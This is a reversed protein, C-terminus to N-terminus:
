RVCESSFRLGEVERPHRELTVPVFTALWRYGWQDGITKTVTLKVHNWGAKLTIPTPERMFYEENTFATESINNSTPEEPHTMMWKLGANVWKPAPVAVGNVEVKTGPSRGWEGAEPLGNSRGGSRGFGTFGIWAGITQSKSSHIWTEVYAVGQTEMLYSSERKLVHSGCDAITITAQAVDTAVVEGRSNSIRFRLPTQRVYSFPLGLPLVVKDRNAIMADEFAAAEAFEATGPPPLKVLYEPRDKARGSWQFDCYSVIALAFSNDGWVRSTDEGLYDDHWSCLVVGLKNEDPIDYRLPKSFVAGNLFTMPDIGGFYCRVTDLLPAHPDVKYNERWVMKVSKDGDSEGLSKGPAWAVPTRGNDRIKRAWAPCFWDPVMEYPTRAEDTGIHIFPMDEASALSCLEDILDSVIGCVRYEAMHGIGLGRRFALSHGPVDLEPMVVIGRSKAYAVVERFDDQTYYRGLQRRFAWPAQLMPYKKSELRWGYYDTLHWHFLNLKYMAMLDLLKLIEGKDLFNRGCDHMFGRWRCAPWDAIECCPPVGDSLKVLQALTARAMREGKQGPAEVVIEKPSVVLRYAEDAAFPNASAIRSRVVRVQAAPSSVGDRRLVKRPRPLLNELPGAALAYAACAAVVCSVRKMTVTAM